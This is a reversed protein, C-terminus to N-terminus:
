NSLRRPPTEPRARSPREHSDLPGAGSPRRYTGVERAPSVTGNGLIRRLARGLVEITVPKALSADIGEERSVEEWNSELPYGSVVLVKIRNDRKRLERVLDLGGLKPMVLDTMLLDVPEGDRDYMELAHLGNDAVTVRYGLARLMTEWAIAVSPEDEVVLIHEHNDESLFGHRVAETTAPAPPKARPLFISFTTGSGVTSTVTVQGEHRQIIGYVQALGLGTGGKARKTSFFPEFITKLNEPPIGAGTDSVSLVVWDGADLPREALASSPRQNDTRTAPNDPGVQVHNLAIELTGGQTMADRANVVLNMLVQELQGEDADVWHADSGDDIHLHINEPVGKRMLASAKAITKRVNITTRHSPSQKTFDLIQQIMGVARTGAELIHGGFERHQDPNAVGAEILRAFGIIAQLSNNFDHSIGAALEGIAALRQHRQNRAQIQRQESVDRIVVVWGGELGGDKITEVRVELIRMSGDSLSVEHALNGREPVGCLEAFPTDGISSVEDDYGLHGISSMLETGAENMLQIRREADLTVVGDQISRLTTLLRQRDVELRRELRSLDRRSQHRDVVSEVAKGLRVFHSSSKVIYDDAGAKIARVAVDEGSAGSFVIIPCQPYSARILTIAQLGDFTGMYFDTVAVDYPGRRLANALGTKNGVEEADVADFIKKLARVALMRDSPNDDIILARLM